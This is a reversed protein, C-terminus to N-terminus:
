LLTPLPGAPRLLSVNCQCPFLLALLAEASLQCGEGVLPSALAKVQAFM